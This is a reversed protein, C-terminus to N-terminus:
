DAKMILALLIYLVTGPLIGTFFTAIAYIVRVLTPDVDFYEGLGSCVGALQANDRRRHLMRAPGGLRAGCVSCFRADPLVERQCRQCIRTTAAM